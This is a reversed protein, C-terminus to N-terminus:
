SRYQKYTKDQSWGTEKNFSSVKESEFRIYSRSAQFLRFSRSFILQFYRQYVMSKLNDCTTSTNKEKKKEEEKKRRREQMKTQRWWLTVSSFSLPKCKQWPNTKKKKLETTNLETSDPHVNSSTNCRQLFSTIPQALGLSNEAWLSQDKKNTHQLIISYFFLTCM